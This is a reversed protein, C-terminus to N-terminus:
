RLVGITSEAMAGIYQDRVETAGDGAAPAGGGLVVGVFADLTTTAAKSLGTNALDNTFTRASGIIPRNGDADNATQVVYGTGATGAAGTQLRILLTTSTEHQMYVEVTRSGRRLLLDILTRGVNAAPGRMLRICVAEPDNRLVTLQAIDAPLLAVGNVYFDWAKLSWAPDDWADISLLGAGTRQVRVLGNTLVWGTPSAVIGTGSREVGDQVFSAAGSLYSAPDCGWRPDVGAPLALYVRITGGGERTRVVSSGPGTTGTWYGYHDAAPAHWRTGGLAHDNQRVVGTLRSELDVANNPGFPVLSLNWDMGAAAEQRSWDTIAAGVDKVRYYGNLDPKDSFTVAQVTDQMQILDDRKARLAALTLYPSTETGAVVFSREGTQANVAFAARPNEKLEIRGFRLTGWSM